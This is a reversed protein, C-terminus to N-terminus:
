HQLIRVLQQFKKKASELCGTESKQNPRSQLCYSNNTNKLIMNKSITSSESMEGGGGTISGKPYTMCIAYNAINRHM